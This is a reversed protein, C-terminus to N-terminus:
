SIRNCIALVSEVKKRGEDSLQELNYDSFVYRRMEREELGGWIELLSNFAELKRMSRNVLLQWIGGVIGLAIVATAIATMVEWASTIHWVSM